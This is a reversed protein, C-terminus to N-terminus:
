CVAEKLVYKGTVLPVQELSLIFTIGAVTDWGSTAGFRTVDGLLRENGTSLDKGISNLFSYFSESLGDQFLAQFFALSIQTTKEQAAAFLMAALTVAMHHNGVKHLGMVMGALFDDGSPTLGNGLGILSQLLNMINANYFSNSSDHWQRIVAVVDLIRRKLLGSLTSGKEPLMEEGTDLFIPILSGLSESPAYQRAQGALWHLDERLQLEALCIDSLSIDWIEASQLNFQLQGSESILRDDSMTFSRISPLLHRPWPSSGTCQLTFPGRGIEQHGICIVNQKADHCYFCHSHLSHVFWKDAHCMFEKAMKGICTVAIEPVHKDARYCKV